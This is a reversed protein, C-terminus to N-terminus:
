GQGPAAVPIAMFEEGKKELRVLQPLHAGAVIARCAAARAFFDLRSAIAQSGDLDFRVAASPHAFQVVGIHILDGVCWFEQGQSSFVYVTHGATHGAAPEARIGSGLDVGAAFPQYRKEAVYPALARQIQQARERLEQPLSAPDRMWYDHEAQSARVIARPFVPRGDTTVLGGIHDFHFHTIPILDVQAPSLGAGALLESLHGSDEGPVAGTGTDVLVVRDPMRVLFANAPISVSDGGGARASAVKPDLGTLIALPMQFHADPLVSVQLAGVTLAPPVQPKGPGDAILVSAALLILSLTGSLRATVPHPNM